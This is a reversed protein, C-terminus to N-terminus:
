IDGFTGGALPGRTSLWQTPCNPLDELGNGSDMILVRLAVPNQPYKKSPNHELSMHFIRIVGAECWRPDEM